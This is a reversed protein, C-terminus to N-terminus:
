SGTLMGLRIDDAGYEADEAKRSDRWTSAVPFIVAYVSNELTNVCHLQSLRGGGEGTITAVIAVPWRSSERSPM